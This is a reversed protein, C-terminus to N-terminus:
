IRWIGYNEPGRNIPELHCENGMKFMAQRLGDNSLSFPQDPSAFENHRLREVRKLPERIDHDFLGIARLGFPGLCMRQKGTTAGDSFFQSYRNRERLTSLGCHVGEAFNELDSARGSQSDATHEQAIDPPLGIGSREEAPMSFFATRHSQHAIPRVG